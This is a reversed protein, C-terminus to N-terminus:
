SAFSFNATDAAIAKFGGNEGFMGTSMANRKSM